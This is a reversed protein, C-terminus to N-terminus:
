ALTKLGGVTNTMEIIYGQMSRLGNYKKTTLEAVLISVLSKDASHFTEKVFKIYEKASEAQSNTIKKNNVITM